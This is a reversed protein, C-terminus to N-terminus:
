NIVDILFFIFGLVAGSLVAAVAIILMEVLNHEVKWVQRPDPISIFAQSLSTDEQNEM